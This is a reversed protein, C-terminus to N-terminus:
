LAEYKRDTGNRILRVGHDPYTVIDKSSRVGVILFSAETNSRNALCHAVESGAPWAAADGAHLLVEGEEVLVLEGTLVYVFEDEALHWHRISSRSGPALREIRVGFQKLNVQDGLVLEAFPGTAEGFIPNPDGNGTRWNTMSLKPM